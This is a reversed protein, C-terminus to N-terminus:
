RAHSHQDFQTKKRYNIAESLHQIQIHESCALDAITRAVKLIRHIALGSLGLQKVALQLLQLQEENLECYQDIEKKTLTANTKGSRDIQLQFAHVVRQRIVKSSEISNDPKRGIMKEGLSNVEIVMDIRDLLPGSIRNQYRTVQDETCRCRGTSEGLYGCPCPNMAAVLQFRAPFEVQRAARSIVIRGSELPERLVELVKRDFEPLEDLFLIGNHALSIEGPRPLSGGGVLAVASASHHPCRMVRRRWHRSDFGQHSISAIAASELAQEMGLPPMITLLREALMTKGSGPHGIMLLNHGGAAALELARKAQEHGIVDQMDVDYHEPENVPPTDSCASLTESSAFHACVDLLHPAALCCAHEVFAAESANTRPLILKRRSKAAAIAVPLAGSIQRLEGTLSLEGIFEYHNIEDSQLQGSAFLIGIAIPLDFRGGEKPLDAPALNVTIRSLPFEFQNNLIASRVREKSEAVTKDPLGVIPFMVDAVQLLAWSAAAYIAAVRYVGRSRSEAVLRRIEM